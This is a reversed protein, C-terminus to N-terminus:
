FDISHKSTIRVFISPCNICNPVNGHNKFINIKEAYNQNHNHSSNLMTCTKYKYICINM